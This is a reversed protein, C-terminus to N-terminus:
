LVVAVGVDTLPHLPDDISGFDVARSLQRISRRCYQPSPVAAITIIQSYQALDGPILFEPM